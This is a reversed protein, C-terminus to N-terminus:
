FNGRRTYTNQLWGIGAVLNPEPTEVLLHYHNTMLVWAHVLWGTLACAESVTQLYIRRDLEDVFIPERRNGRAMLHYYCVAIEIRITRAM